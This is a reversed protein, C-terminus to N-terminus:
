ILKAPLGNAAAKKLIEDAPLGCPAVFSLKDIMGTGTIQASDSTPISMSVRSNVGSLLTLLRAIGAKCQCETNACIPCDHAEIMRGM